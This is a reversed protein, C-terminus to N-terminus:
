TRAPWIRARATVHRERPRGQLTDLLDREKELDPSEIEELRERAARAATRGRWPRGPDVRRGDGTCRPGPRGIRLRTSRRTPSRACSTCWRTPTKTPSWMWWRGPWGTRCRGPRCVGGDRSHAEESQVDGHPSRPAPGPGQLHRDAGRWAGASGPRGRARRDHAPFAHDQRHGAIWDPLAFCPSPPRWDRHAAEAPWAGM